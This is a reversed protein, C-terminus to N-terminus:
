REARQRAPRALERVLEDSSMPAGVAYGQVADYGLRALTDEEVLGEVGEAIVRMGLRQALAVAAEVVAFRAQDQHMGAVFRADLKLMDVPLVSVRDLGAYGAGFDDLAISVGLRKIEVLRDRLADLDEFSATETLELCLRGPDLGSAALAAAVVGNFRPDAMQLASVNVAVYPSDGPPVTWSAADACAARLVWEGLVGILGVEEALAVVEAPSRDRWPEHEWRLLAEAGIVRGTALEIEPQYQIRFGDETLARRLAQELQHRWLSLQRRDESAGFVRDGGELAAAVAALEADHVLREPDDGASGLAYGVSATVVVAAAPLSVPRSVVARVTEALEAVNTAEAIVALVFTDDSPQTLSSGPALLAGLRDALVALVEARGRWGHALGIPRFRDLHAVLVGVGAPAAGSTSRGLLTGVQEAFAVRGGLGTVPGTLLDALRGLRVLEAQVATADNAVIVAGDGFARVAVDTWTGVGGLDAVM